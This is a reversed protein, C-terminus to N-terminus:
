CHLLLRVHARLPAPSLPLCAPLGVSVCVCPPPPLLVRLGLLQWQWQLPQKPSSLLRSRDEEKNNCWRTPSPASAMSRASSWTAARSGSRRSVSAASARPSRLTACAAADDEDDRGRHQAPRSLCCAPPAYRRCAHSAPRVAGVTGTFILDGPELTCFRSMWAVVYEPTFVFESTNSDQLTRGNVRCRLGCDKTDISARTVIVPGIPAYNDFTKGLLWQGGNKKLQWDRASVDHAVTYGLIYQGAEAESIRRPVTQGIVVALEVEYDLESTEPDKTLTDGTGCITNPFKNFIVPETPIPYNQETCHEVYNMGVCIIKGVGEIPAKLKVPKSVRYAGSKVVEQAALLLPEGGQALALSTAAVNAATLDVVESRQSTWGCGCGVRMGGADRM